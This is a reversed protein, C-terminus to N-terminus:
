RAVLAAYVRRLFWLYPQHKRVRPQRPPHLLEGPVQDQVCAPPLNDGAVAERSRRLRRSLPLQSRASLWRVRVTPPPRLVTRPHRRGDSHSPKASYLLPSMGCIKIPAELELLIPQNIFIERAKTCLSKIELEQLQVPKGPRNGRVTCFFTHCQANTRRLCGSCLSPLLFSYPDSPPASRSAHLFVCSV